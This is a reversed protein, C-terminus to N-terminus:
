VMCHHLLSCCSKREVTSLSVSVPPQLGASWFCPQIKPWRAKIMCLWSKVIDTGWSHQLRHHIDWPIRNHQRCCAAGPGGQPWAQRSHLYLAWLYLSLHLQKKTKPFLSSGPGQSHVLYAALCAWVLQRWPWKCGTLTAFHTTLQLLFGSHVHSSHLHSRKILVSMTTGLIDCTLKTKEKKGPIFSIIGSQLNPNVGVSM